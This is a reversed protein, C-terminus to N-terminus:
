NGQKCAPVIQHGERWQTLCFLTQTKLPKCRAGIGWWSVCCWACVCVCVCWVYLVGCAQRGLLVCPVLLRLVAGPRIITQPVIFQHIQKPPTHIHSLRPQVFRGAGHHTGRLVKHRSACADCEDQCVETWSWQQQRILKRKRGVGERPNSM